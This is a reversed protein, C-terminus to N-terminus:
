DCDMGYGDAADFFGGGETELLEAVADEEAAMPIAEEGHVQYFNELQAMRISRSRPYQEGFFTMAQLLMAATKPMGLAKFAAVAEPALVGTSNEFFQGLGGNMIESQAWHAPLLTQQKKSLAEFQKLFVEAGDYISVEDWIPEIWQWYDESM